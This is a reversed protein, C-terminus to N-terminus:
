SMIDTPRSPLATSTTDAGSAIVSVAKVYSKMADTFAEGMAAAYNIQSQIWGSLEAAAQDKLTITPTYSVVKGDQIVQSLWGRANWEDLALPLMSAADPLDAPKADYAAVNVWNVIPYGGLLQSSPCAYYQAPYDQAWWPEQAQTQTLSDSM